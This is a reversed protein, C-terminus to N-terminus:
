RLRTAPRLVSSEEMVADFVNLLNLDLTKFSVPVVLIRNGALRTRVRRSPIWNLGAKSSSVPRALSAAISAM